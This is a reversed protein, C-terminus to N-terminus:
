DLNFERSFQIAYTILAAVFSNREDSGFEANAASQGLIGFLVVWDYADMEATAKKM